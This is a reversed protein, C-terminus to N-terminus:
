TDEFIEFYSNQTGDLPLWIPAIGLERVLVDELDSQHELWTIVAPAARIRMQRGARHRANRQLERLIEHAIEAASRPPGAPPVPMNLPAFRRERTIALLGGQSIKELRTFAPDFALGHQLTEKVRAWGSKNKLTLFDIVIQGGISRVRLEHPIARAAELNIKERLNGAQMAGTNVDIAMFASTPEFILSGGGPLTCISSRAADIQEEIGATAFLDGPMARQLANVAWDPGRQKILAFAAPHDIIIREAQEPGAMKELVACLAGPGAHLLCPPKQGDAGLGAALDPAIRASLRPGKDGIAEKVVQVMIAEGEHPIPSGSAAQQRPLASIPLFGNVGEGIDVFAAGMAKAVHLVRGLYVQGEIARGAIGPKTVPDEFGHAAGLPLHCIELLREDNCLALRTEFIGGNIFISRAM